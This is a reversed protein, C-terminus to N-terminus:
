VEVMVDWHICKHSQQQVIFEGKRNMCKIGTECPTGYFCNGCCKLNNVEILLKEIKSELVNIIVNDSINGM